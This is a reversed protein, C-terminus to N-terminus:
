TKLKGGAKHAVSAVADAMGAKKRRKSTDPDAQSARTPASPGASTEPTNVAGDLSQLSMQQMPQTNSTSDGAFSRDPRVNPGTGVEIVVEDGDEEEEEDGDEEGDGDQTEDQADTFNTAPTVKAVVVEPERKPLKGILELRDQRVGLMWDLFNAFKKYTAQHEALTAAFAFGTAVRLSHINYPRDDDTLKVLWHVSAELIDGNFCISGVCAEGIDSKKGVNTSSQETEATNTPLQQDIM